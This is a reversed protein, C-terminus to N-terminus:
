RHIAREFDKFLNFNGRREFLNGIVIGSAGAKVLREAVDTSTIGGGVFIPLEVYKRLASIVPPPIPESAGSGADLYLLQMGLYCGALGHVCILELKDSPIPRTHSVFAVATNLNSGVLMYGTPIVELGYSKVLPASKVQEEILWVPNRGSILSMFLVGDAHPSLQSSGGPFIVVPVSSKEKVFEVFSSFDPKLLFSGGVLILDVGSSCGREIVKAVDNIDSDPDILLIFLAGKERISNQLYSWLRNSKM